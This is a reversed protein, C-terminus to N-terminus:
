SRPARYKHNIRNVMRGEYMENEIFVDIEKGVANAFDFRAGPAVEGGLSEFFGVMFGKAKSNFIWLPAPVNSFKDSGDDANRLITGSIRYNTSDGAKSMGEDVSDIRVRYWAPDVIKSRLIDENSFEVIPM